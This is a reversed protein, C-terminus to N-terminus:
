ERLQKRPREGSREGAVRQPLSKPREIGNGDAVETDAAVPCHVVRGGAATGSHDHAGVNKARGEIRGYGGIGVRLKRSIEM